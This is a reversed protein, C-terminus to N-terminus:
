EEEGPPQGQPPEIEYVFAPQIENTLREAAKALTALVEDIV